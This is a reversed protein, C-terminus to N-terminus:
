RHALGVKKYHTNVFYTFMERVRRFTLDVLMGFSLGWVSEIPPTEIFQGGLELAESNLWGAYLKRVALTYLTLDARHVHVSHFCRCLGEQLVVDLPTGFRYKGSDYEARM